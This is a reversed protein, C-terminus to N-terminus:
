KIKENSWITILGAIFDPQKAWNFHNLKAIGTEEITVHKHLIDTNSNYKKYLNEVAKKPALYDNEISISLVSKSLLQLASEYDFDSNIPKYKGSRANYSWDKIATRAERGAFGVKHGPFYGYLLSIPSFITGALRVKFAALKSWGKYYVSCSAILILGHVLQPFQAAFLSGIQGGLSHGVIIKKSNPFWNNSHDILEGLDQIYDKYGFDIKRSARISSHGLGRWDATIVNFGKESLNRAFLDYYKAKVGMAPLCIFTIENVKNSPYVSIKNETRDRYIIRKLDM